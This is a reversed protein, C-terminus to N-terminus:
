TLTLTLTVGGPTVRALFSALRPADAEAGCTRVFDEGEVSAHATSGRRLPNLLHFEAPTGTANALAAASAALACIEGWRSSSVVM